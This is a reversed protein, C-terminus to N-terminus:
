GGVGKSQSVSERSQKLQNQFKKPQNDELEKIMKTLGDNFDKEKSDGFIYSMIRSIIWSFINSYELIKGIEPLLFHTKIAPDKAILASFTKMGCKQISKLSQIKALNNDELVQQERSEKEKDLALKLAFIVEAYDNQLRSNNQSHQNELNKIKKSIAKAKKKVPLNIIRKEQSTKFRLDFIIPNLVKNVLYEAKEEDSLEQFYEKEKNSLSSTVKEPYAELKMKMEEVTPISNKLSKLNEVTNKIIQQEISQLINGGFKELFVKITIDEIVQGFLILQKQQNEQYFVNNNNANKFKEVDFRGKSNLPLKDKFDEQFTKIISVSNMAAALGCCNGYQQGEVSLNHFDL